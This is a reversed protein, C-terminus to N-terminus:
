LMANKGRRRCLSLAQVQLRPGEEQRKRQLKPICFEFAADKRPQVTAQRTRKTAEKQTAKAGRAKGPSTARRSSLTSGAFTSRRPGSARCDRRTVPTVVPWLQKKST